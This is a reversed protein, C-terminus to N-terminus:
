NAIQQIIKTLIRFPLRFSHHFSFAKSECEGLKALLLNIYHWKPTCFDITQHIKKVFCVQGIIDRDTVPHDTHPNNDGKTHWGDLTPSIARHTFFENDTNIVLINGRQIQKLPIIRAIVTDGIDIIPRMSNSTVKFSIQDGVKLDSSIM